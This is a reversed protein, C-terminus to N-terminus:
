IRQQSPRNLPRAYRAPNIRAVLFFRTNKPRAPPPPGPPHPAAPSPRGDTGATDGDTTPEQGGREGSQREALERERQALALDPRVLLTQDTIQGITDENPIALGLYRGAQEDYGTAIAFAEIDWTLESAVSRVGDDLITRDRLRPLYPHRCYYTWLEGLQIHGQQWVSALRRDLDNRIRRAGHVTRVM